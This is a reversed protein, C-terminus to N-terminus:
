DAFDNNVRVALVCFEPRKALTEFVREGQRVYRLIRM